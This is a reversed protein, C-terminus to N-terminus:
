SAFPRTPRNATTLIPVLADSSLYGIIRVCGHTRCEESLVAWKLWQVVWGSFWGVVWGSFSQAFARPENLVFYIAPM